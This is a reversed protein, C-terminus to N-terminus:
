PEPDGSPFAKSTYACARGDHCVLQTDWGTRSDYTYPKVTVEGDGFRGKVLDALASFDAVPVARTVSEWVTDGGHWRFLVAGDHAGSNSDVQTPLLERAKSMSVAWVGFVDKWFCQMWRGREKAVAEQIATDAFADLAALVDVHSALGDLINNYLDLAIAHGEKAKAAESPEKNDATM